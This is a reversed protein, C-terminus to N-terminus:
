APGVVASGTADSRMTIPVSPAAPTPLTIWARVVPGTGPKPLVQSTHLMLAPRHVLASPAGSAFAVIPM